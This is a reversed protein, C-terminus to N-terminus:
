FGIKRLEDVSTLGLKVKELADVGLTLFGKKLAYTLINEYNANNEIMSKLNRDLFLFEAVMLRGKYGSYM